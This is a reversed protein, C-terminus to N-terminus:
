DITNDDSVQIRYGRPFSGFPEDYKGAKASSAWDFFVSDFEKSAGFDFVAWTDNNPPSFSWAEWTIDWTPWNELNAPSALIAGASHSDLSGYSRILDGDGGLNIMGYHPIISYSGSVTVDSSDVWGNSLLGFREPNWISSQELFNKDWERELVCDYYCVANVPKSLILYNGDSDTNSTNINLIYESM